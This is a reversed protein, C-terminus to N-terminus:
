NVFLGWDRVELCELVRHLAAADEKVVAADAMSPPQNCPRNITVLLDTAQAELRLVALSILLSTHRREEPPGAPLNQTGHLAFCPCPGRERLSPRTLQSSLPASSLVTSGAADNSSAQEGFHFAACSADDADVRELIEVVISREPSDRELWVEQHNPVPRADSADLWSDPIGAVIAGGFLDAM